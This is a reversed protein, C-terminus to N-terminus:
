SLIANKAKRLVTTHKTHSIGEKWKIYGWGQDESYNLM